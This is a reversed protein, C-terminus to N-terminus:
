RIIRFGVNFTEGAGQALSGYVFNTYLLEAELRGPIIQYKTGIGAQVFFAHFAEAKQQNTNYHVPWYETTVYATFRSTPLYSLFISM